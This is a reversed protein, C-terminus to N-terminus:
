FKNELSERKIFALGPNQQILSLIKNFKNDMDTKLTAMNRDHEQRLRDIKEDESRKIEDFAEPVLPYSCSSCYKNEIANVLECRPCNAVSPKRNSMEESIIGNHELIKIKLENGMRKKIYRAGQKSNMSWRVKKKLAYEPLYDSDYSISSHRICYPNWKKIRLLYRIQELEKSDTIENYDILRQIRKKLQRMVDYIQDPGISSGTLLNCILRAEPENKFPHENLWDRVYPFSFTLLMPGSGTKAEHPIEGEGYKEKLRVHKIKLLTIEHPRADLDWLLSLIAKNRKYPEYKIITTLEDRDWIETELYPSLRKTRKMKINIFDPTNWTDYSKANIGKDRANNLWRYFYKLRWLYDNWTTIWKKDPDDKDSKRKSDLFNLIQEKEQIQYFTTYVGIYEAYRILVKLLGNQYNESTDITKLYEYFEKIIQRNTQNAVKVDINKITTILKAPM